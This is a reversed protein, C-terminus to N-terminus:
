LFIRSFLGNSSLSGPSLSFDWDERCSSTIYYLSSNVALPLPIGKIPAVGEKMKIELGRGRTFKEVEEVHTLELNSINAKNLRNLSAKRADMHLSLVKQTLDAGKEHNEDDLDTIITTLHIFPSWDTLKFSITNIGGTALDVKDGNKMTDECAIFVKTLKAEPLEPVLTEGEFVTIQASNLQFNSFFLKTLNSQIHSQCFDFFVENVFSPISLIKKFAYDSSKSGFNQQITIEIALDKDFACKEKPLLHFESVLVNRMKRHTYLREEIFHTKM